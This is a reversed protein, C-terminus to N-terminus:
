ETSHRFRSCKSRRLLQFLRKILSLRVLIPFRGYEQNFTSTTRKGHDDCGTIISIRRFAKGSGVSSWKTDQRGEENRQGKRSRKLRPLPLLLYTLLYTYKDKETVGLDWGHIKTIDMPEFNTGHIANYSKVPYKDWEVLRYHEMPVGLRELAMAQAGIGGFLEILRVTKHIKYEKLNSILDMFNLQEFQQM